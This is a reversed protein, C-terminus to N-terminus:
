HTAEDGNLIQKIAQITHYDYDALDIEDLTDIINSLPVGKEIAHISVYERTKDNVMQRVPCRLCVSENNLTDQTCNLCVINVADQLEKNM